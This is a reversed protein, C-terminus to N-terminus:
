AVSQLGGVFRATKLPLHQTELSRDVEEAAEAILSRHCFSADAEYCVMCVRQEVASSVLESLVSAQTRIYVRFERAYAAWNGDEKYQKRIPKPCGLPRSHEYAIGEAALCQAFANKSFGKKRSLPYERVDLVKDIGAQKLRAIFADISLGEYGATYLNM